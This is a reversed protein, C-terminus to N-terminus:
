AGGDVVDSGLKLRVDVSHYIPSIGDLEGDSRGFGEDGEEGRVSMLGMFEGRYGDFVGGEWKVATRFEQANGKVGVEGEGGVDVAYDSLNVM